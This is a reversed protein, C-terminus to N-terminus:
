RPNPPAEGGYVDYSRRPGEATRARSNMYRRYLSLVRGRPIHNLEAQDLIFDATKDDHKRMAEIYSSLARTASDGKRTPQGLPIITHPIYAQTAAPEHVIEPLAARELRNKLDQGIFPVVGSDLGVMGLQAAREWRTANPDIVPFGSGPEHGTAVAMVAKPLLGIKGTLYAYPDNFAMAIETYAKGFGIYNETGDPNYGSFIRISNDTIGRTFRGGVEIPNGPNDWMGHARNVGNKDPAPGDKGSYIWGTTAFNALNSTVFWTFM